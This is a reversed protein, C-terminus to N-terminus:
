ELYWHNALVRWIVEVPTTIPSEQQHPSPRLSQAAQIRAQYHWAAPSLLEKLSQEFDIERIYNEVSACDTFSKTSKRRSPRGSPPM